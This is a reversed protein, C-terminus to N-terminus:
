RARSAAMQKERQKVRRRQEYPDLILKKFTFYALLPTTTGYFLPELM